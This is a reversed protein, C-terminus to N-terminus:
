ASSAPGQRQLRKAIVRDVSWPGAGRLFLCFAMCLLAIQWEIGGVRGDVVGMKFGQGWHVQFIAVLMVGIHGLAAVRTGLGFLLLVGGGFEALAAVWAMVGPMPVGMKSLTASFGEIGGFLKPYGHVIFTASLSLRLPLDSWDALVERWSHKGVEKM